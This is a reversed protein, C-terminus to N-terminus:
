LRWNLTVLWVNLRRNAPSRPLNSLEQVYGTEVRLQRSVQRGVGVFFRNRDLGSEPGRDLSNLNWFLEDYGVLSWRRDRSIPYSLRVMYRARLSVGDLGDLFREELRFRNTFAMRGFSDEYLLQQFSRHEGVFRPTLLRTWGYGQWVSLKPTLQYGIAPRLVLLEIGGVDSGHRPQVEFYLKWRPSLSKQVTILTWQQSDNDDARAARGPGALLALALLWPILSM